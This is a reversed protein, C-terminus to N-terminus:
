LAGPNYRTLYVVDGDRLLSHRSGKQGNVRVRLFPPLKLQRALMAAHIRDAEVRETTIKTGDEYHVTIM